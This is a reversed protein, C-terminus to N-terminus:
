APSIRTDFPGFAAPHDIHNSVDIARHDRRFFNQGLLLPAADKAEKTSAIEKRVLLLPSAATITRQMGETEFQHEGAKYPLDIVSLAFMMEVFSGSAQALATSVFPADKAATAYDVWFQNATQRCGIAGVVM